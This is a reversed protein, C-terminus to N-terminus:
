EVLSEGALGLLRNLNEANLRLVREGPEAPNGGGGIPAAELVEPEPSSKAASPDVVPVVSATPKAVAAPGKPPIPLAPNALAALYADVEASHAAEWKSVDAETSHAIQSLLDVGRLLLDIERRALQLNGRQAAVFCDEMAHAVRVGTPIHIIRAAGKISHAARMLTELVHPTVSGKEIELLGNTLAACQSEAEVRFLDFMSLSSLDDQHRHSMRHKSEPGPVAPEHRPLLCPQKALAVRRAHLKHRVERTHQATRWSKRPRM